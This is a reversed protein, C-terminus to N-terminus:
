QLTRPPPQKQHAFYGQVGPSPDPWRKPAVHYGSVKRDSMELSPLLLSLHPPPPRGATCPSVVMDLDVLRPSSWIVLGPARGSGECGHKHIFVFLSSSPSSPRGATCPPVVIELEGLPTVLGPGRSSGQYGKNHKIRLDESQQIRLSSLLVLHLRLLFLVFFFFSPSRRHLAPCCNGLGRPAHRAGPSSWM